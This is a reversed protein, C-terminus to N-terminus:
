GENITGGAARRQGRGRLTVFEEKVSLPTRIRRAVTVGGASKTTM